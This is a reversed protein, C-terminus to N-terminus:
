KIPSKYKRTENSTGWKWNLLLFRKGHKCLRIYVRSPNPSNSVTMCVPSSFFISMAQKYFNELNWRVFSHTFLTFKDLKSSSFKKLNTSAHNARSFCFMKVGCGHKCVRMCVSRKALWLVHVIKTINKFGRVRKTLTSCAHTYIDNSFRAWCSVRSGRNRPFFLHRRTFLQKRKRLFNIM